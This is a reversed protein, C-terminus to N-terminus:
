CGVSFLLLIDSTVPKDINKWKNNIPDFMIGFLIYHLISLLPFSIFM